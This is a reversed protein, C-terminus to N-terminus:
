REASVSVKEKLALTLHPERIKDTVIYFPQGLDDAEAVADDMSGGPPQVGGSAGGDEKVEAKSGDPIDLRLYEHLGEATHTAFPGLSQPFPPSDNM